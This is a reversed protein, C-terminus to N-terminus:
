YRERSGSFTTSSAPPGRATISQKPIKVSRCISRYKSSPQSTFARPLPWIFRILSLTRLSGPSTQRVCPFYRQSNRLKTTMHGTSTSRDTMKQCSDGSKPFFISKIKTYWPKTITSLKKRTLPFPSHRSLIIPSIIRKGASAM